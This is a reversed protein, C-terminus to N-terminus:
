INVQSIDELKDQLARVTSNLTSIEKKLAM